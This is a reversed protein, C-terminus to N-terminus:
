FKKRLLTFEFFDTYFSLSYLVPRNLKCFSVEELLLLAAGEEPLLKSRIFEDANTASVNTISNVVNLGCYRSLLEFVPRYWDLMAYNVGGFLSQPIYDISYIVPKGNALVRKQCIVLREGQDINLHEAIAETAYDERLIINDIVPRCGSSQIMDFYELKLDLRNNLSVIRRNVVTGVGRVREIFGANELDSLADRIVTRSVGYHEALEMEAPLKETESYIGSKLERMLASAIQTSMLDGSFGLEQKEM